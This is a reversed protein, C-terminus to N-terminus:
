RKARCTGRPQGEISIVEGIEMIRKFARLDDRIQQEPQEGFLKAAWRGVSGASPDYRLEVRVATGRDGLARVFTVSGSHAVDAGDVTRWAIQSNPVDATIEADWQVEGGVIAPAKAVWHSRREDVRRVSKLHSMFRPLQEFDKWFAYLEEPSKNILLSQVVHVGRDTQDPEAPSSRDSSPGATNVGVARYM